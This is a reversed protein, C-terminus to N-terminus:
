PSDFLCLPRMYEYYQEKTAAIMIVRIPKNGVRQWVIDERNIGFADITEQTIEMPIFYQKDSNKKDKDLKTM